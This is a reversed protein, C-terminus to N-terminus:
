EIGQLPEGTGIELQMGLALQFYALLMFPDIAGNAFDTNVQAIAADRKAVADAPDLAYGKGIAWAVFSSEFDTDTFSLRNASYVRNGGTDIAYKSAVMNVVYRYPATKEVRLSYSEVHVFDYSLAPVTDPNASRIAM